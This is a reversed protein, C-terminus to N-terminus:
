SDFVPPVAKCSSDLTEKFAKSILGDIIDRQYKTTKEYQVGVGDSYVRIVRGKIKFPLFDNGESLTFCLALERGTELDASTEIYVGTASIDRICGLHAKGDVAFDVRLSCPLRPYDRVWRMNPDNLFGLRKLLSQKDLQRILVFIRAIILADSVNTDGNWHLDVAADTGGAEPDRQLAHYLEARQKRDMRYISVAMRSVITHKEIEAAENLIGKGKQMTPVGVGKMSYKFLGLVFNFM